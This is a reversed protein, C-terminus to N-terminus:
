IYYIKFVTSITENLMIFESSNYMWKCDPSNTENSYYLSCSINILRILQMDMHACFCTYKYCYM